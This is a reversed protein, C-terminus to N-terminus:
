EVEFVDSASGGEPLFGSIRDDQSDQRFGGGLWGGGM